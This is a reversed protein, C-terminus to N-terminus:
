DAARQAEADLEQVQDRVGQMKSLMESGESGDEDEEEDGEEEEEDEDGEEDDEEQLGCLLL